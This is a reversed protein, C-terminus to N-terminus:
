RRGDANDDSFLLSLPSAKVTIPIVSNIHVVSPVFVLTSLLIAPLVANVISLRLLSSHM